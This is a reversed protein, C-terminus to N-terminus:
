RPFHKPITTNLDLNARKLLGQASLRQRLAPTDRCVEDFFAELATKGGEAEIMQFLEHMSLGGKDRPRNPALEARYSGKELRHRYSSYWDDWDSAHCHALDIDPTTEPGQLMEDHQFANHIQVRVGSLGSRVFCKGALHSLFGGKLYPGYTPYLGAVIKQRDPGNPVFAKFSTGDGALQEMPRIRAIKQEPPLAALVAAVPQQAVLFEDVDMHILWDVEARRGYAHTANRTQRVQHKKPPKGNWWAENCLTPRIKPHAKLADFAAQNDDDLYIYLRHAGAELHYAAFALIDRVPALITASIGWTATM